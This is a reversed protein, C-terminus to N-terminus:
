EDSLVVRSRRLVEATTSNPVSEIYEALRERWDLSKLQDALVVGSTQLGDPLLVELPYGKARGTIPCCVMLGVRANYTGDSLVFVPRRGAQEHGLTPDLSLWWIEGRRPARTPQTM